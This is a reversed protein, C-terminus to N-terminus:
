SPPEMFRTFSLTQMTVPAASPIPCAQACPTQSLFARLQGEEVNQVLGTLGQDFFQLRSTCERAVPMDINHALATHMLCDIAYGPM